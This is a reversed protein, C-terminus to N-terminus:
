FAFHRNDASNIATIHGHEHIYVCPPLSSSTPLLPIADHRAHRTPAPITDNLIHRKYTPLRTTKNDLRVSASHAGLPFPSSIGLFSYGHRELLQRATSRSSYLLTRVCSSCNNAKTYHQQLRTELDGPPAIAPHTAWKCSSPHSHTPSSHLSSFNILKSFTAVSQYLLLFPCCSRSSCEFSRCLLLLISSPSTSRM